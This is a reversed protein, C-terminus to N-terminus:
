FVVDRVPLRFRATELDIDSSPSAQMAAVLAAGTAVGFSAADAPADALITDLASRVLADTSVGKAQAVALLKAEEQPELPLTITMAAGGSVM